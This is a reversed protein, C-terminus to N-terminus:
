MKDIVVLSTRGPAERDPLFGPHIIGVLEGGLERLLPKAEEVEAEIDSRKLAVYRGGGRLLGLAVPAMRTITGAARSVAVDYERAGVISEARARLVSVNGLELASKAEALFACKRGSSEVLSVEWDPCMLALVLGLLGSGSGIDVVAKGGTGGIAGIVGISDAIAEEPKGAMSKSVLGAWRRRLTMMKIYSEVKKKKTDREEIEYREMAEELLDM